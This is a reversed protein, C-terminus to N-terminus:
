LDACYLLPSRVDVIINKCEELAVKQAIEALYASEAHTLTGATTRDLEIYAETEPLVSKFRDPDVQVACAGDGV